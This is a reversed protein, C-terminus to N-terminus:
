RILLNMLYYVSKKKLALVVKNKKVCKRFLFCRQKMGERTSNKNKEAYTYGMNFQHKQQDNSQTKKTLVTTKNNGGRESFEKM